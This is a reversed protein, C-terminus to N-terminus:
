QDLNKNTLSEYFKQVFRPVLPANDAAPWKKWKEVLGEAEIEKESKGAAIDLKVQAIEDNLLQVYEALDRRNSMEGHGTVIITDDNIRAAVASLTHALGVMDAGMSIEGKGHFVDGMQVVNAQTFYVITDGDTHGDAYHVLEVDEGDFHIALSDQFTIRPWAREPYPGIPTPSWWPKQQTMMRKRVNEHAIVVANPAYIENGGVHDYHWHTNILFRVPLKAYNDLTRQILPNAAVEPHDVLLYGEPGALLGINSVGDGVRVQLVSVNGRLRMVSAVAKSYDIKGMQLAFAPSAALSVLVISFARLLTKM